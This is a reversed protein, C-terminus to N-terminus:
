KLGVLAALDREQNRGQNRQAPATVEGPRKGSRVSNTLVRVAYAPSSASNAQALTIADDVWARKGNTLDPWLALLELLINGTMPGIAELKSIAAGWEPDQEPFAPASKSAPPRAVGREESPSPSPSPSTTVLANRLANRNGNSHTRHRKQRDANAKRASKVQEASPNYELYDHIIFDDGDREWLGATVLENTVANSDTVFWTLRRTLLATVRGDTLQASCYCLATVHLRFAQDSLGLVKPHDPFQDDLRVWAM